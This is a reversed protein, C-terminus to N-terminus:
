RRRWAASVLINAATTASPPRALAVARLLPLVSRRLGAATVLSGVHWLAVMITFQKVNLENCKKNHVVQKRQM